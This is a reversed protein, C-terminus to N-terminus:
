ADGRLDTRWRRIGYPIGSRQFRRVTRASPEILITNRSLRALPLDSSSDTYLADIAGHSLPPPLRAAKHHGINHFSFRPGHQRFEFRSAHLTAGQIGLEELYCIALFEETATTILCAGNTATRRARGVILPDTNGHRHALKRAVRRALSRYGTLSLGQLAIHVIARHVRPRHPGGSSVCASALALIGVPVVLWPRRRLRDFVVSAMTDSRSLVGDLDFVDTM